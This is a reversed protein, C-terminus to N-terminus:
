AARERLRLAGLGGQMLLGAMQYFAPEPLPPGVVGAGFSWDIQKV